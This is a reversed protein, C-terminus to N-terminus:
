VGPEVTVVSGAPLAGRVRLYRFMQDLDAHDPNGGTDHTDMGLYHGLGHPFFAVSTRARFIEERSGGSLIGLRLLGDIAVQHAHSHIDDWVVGERLRETCESQMRLVLDYIHRSKGNFKGSIPFTRTIDAAYCNYEGGADLLLNWRQALPENNKQYHLTAANQGSAVISRYAQERCGHAICREIFVAELERENQAQKVTKMAASHAITSVENAKRILAIEYEDKVVRCEDIAEKLTSFNKSDFGLFTIQDSVHNQIAWVMSSTATPAGALHANVETTYRVDDVDYLKLAEEPSTPLGSWIVNDPNIPPIFLTTKSAVMDYTLYCDPLACGSLYYFHRRQRFPQPEDSDEIMRTKQGELYIVGNAKPHKKQIFAAVKKAHAKAPYKGSLISKLTAMQHQPIDKLPSSPQFTRLLTKSEGWNAQLFVRAIM